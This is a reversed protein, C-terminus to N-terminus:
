QGTGSCTATEAVHRGPIVRSVGYEAVIKLFAAVGSSAEGVWGFVLTHYPLGSAFRELQGPAGGVTTPSTKNDIQRHKNIYEKVARSARQDVARIRARSTYGMGPCYHLTKVEGLHQVLPARFEPELSSTPAPLSAVLDPVVGGRFRPLQDAPLFRRFVDSVEASVRVGAEKVARFLAWKITDHQQDFSGLFGPIAVSGLRDGFEDCVGRTRGGAIISCGQSGGLAPSPKFFYAASVEHFQAPSLTCASDPLANVFGSSCWNLQSWLIKGRVDTSDRFGQDVQRLLVADLL